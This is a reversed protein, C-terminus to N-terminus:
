QFVVNDEFVRGTNHDIKVQKFFINKDDTSDHLLMRGWKLVSEKTIRRPDKRREPLIGILKHGKIEDYLYLEYAVM